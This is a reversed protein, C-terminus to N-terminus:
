CWRVRLFRSRSALRLIVVWRRSWRSASSVLEARRLLGKRKQAPLGGAQQVARPCDKVPKKHINIRKADDTGGDDEVEVV